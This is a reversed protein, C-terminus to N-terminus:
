AVTHTCDVVTAQPHCTRLLELLCYTANNPVIRPRLKRASPCTVLLRRTFSNSMSITAYLSDIQKPSRMGLLTYHARETSRRTKKRKEM